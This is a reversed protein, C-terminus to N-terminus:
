FRYSIMLRNYTWPLNAPNLGNSGGVTREWRNRIQLGKVWRDLKWTVDFYLDHSRGRWRTDYQAYAAALQLEGDFFGYGARAKWARGPGQEVLGRLMSTTFLPDTAYGNSYPSIIAGGGVAGQRGGLRNYALGFSAAGLKAGAEVGWARADVRDGAVGNVRTKTEVLVNDGSSGTQRLVQAGVYPVLRGIAPFTYSADAYGMRGFGRFDYYWTRSKWPGAAYTSGIATTGSTARATVPLTGNQGYMTDGRWRSPYYVNDALFGDSTRSKWRITRIAQLTWGPSVEMSLNLARYSAPIVRSDSPGMWPTDLYQDGARVTVGHGAYEAYAQSFGSLSPGLAMLSADIRSPLDSRTGLSQASFGTAALRFGGVSGSKVTFLGALSWAREDHANGSDFVRDFRYLRLEGDFRGDGIFDEAQVGGTACALAMALSARRRM